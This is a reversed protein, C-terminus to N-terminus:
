RSPRSRLESLRGLRGSGVRWLYYGHTIVPYAYDSPGQSSQPVYSGIQPPEPLSPVPQWQYSPTYSPQAGYQFPPTGNPGYGYQWNQAQADPAGAWIVAGAFGFAATLGLALITGKITM